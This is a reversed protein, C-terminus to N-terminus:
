SSTARPTAPPAGKRERTSQLGTSTIPETLRQPGLRAPLPAQGALWRRVNLADLSRAASATAGMLVVIVTRGAARLQMALCRGADNTFGTKSALIDWGPTGVLRNTNRAEWARGSTAVAWGRQSTIQSILPYESTARLVRAMDMANSRNNPSLGTPEELVTSDLRLMRIKLKTAAAFQAKGGPYSRALAAAAHNDSAILALELLTGRTVVAGIPVGSRTHKLTDMDSLDIRIQEAADQAADLVVMVTMLKTLSAIPAVAVANKQLLVEGTSADIVVAHASEFPIEARAGCTWFALSLSLSLSLLYKAM